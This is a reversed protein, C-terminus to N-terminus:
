SPQCASWIAGLATTGPRAASAHQNLLASVTGATLTPRASAFVKVGDKVSSRCRGNLDSREGLTTLRRAIDEDLRGVGVAVLERCASFVQLIACGELEGRINAQGGTWVAKAQVFSDVSDSAWVSTSDGGCGSGSVLGLATVAALALLRLRMSGQDASSAEVNLPSPKRAVLL